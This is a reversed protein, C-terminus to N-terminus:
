EEDGVVDTSGGLNDRYDFKARDAGAAKDAAPKNNNIPVSIVKPAYEPPPRGEDAGPGIQIGRPTAARVSPSIRGNSALTSLRGFTVSPALVEALVGFSRAAWVALTCFPHVIILFQQEQWRLGAVRGCLVPPLFSPLALIQVSVVCKELKVEGKSERRSRPLQLNLKVAIKHKGCSM